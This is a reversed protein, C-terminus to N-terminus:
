KFWVQLLYFGFLESRRQEVLDEGVYWDFSKAGKRGVSSIKRNKNRQTDKSIPDAEEPKVSDTNAVSNEPLDQLSTEVAGTTSFADEYHSECELGANFSELSKEEDDEEEEEKEQFPMLEPKLEFPVSMSKPISENAEDIRSKHSVFHPRDSIKSKELLEAQIIDCDDMTSSSSFDTAGSSISVNEFASFNESEKMRSRIPAEDESSFREGTSSSLFVGSEGFPCKLRDVPVASFQKNLSATSSTPKCTLTFFSDLSSARFRSPLRDLLASENRKDIFGTSFSRTIPILDDVVCEVLRFNLPNFDLTMSGAFDERFDGFVSADEPEFRNKFQVSFVTRYCTKKELWKIVTKSSSPVSYNTVNKRDFQKGGLSLYQTTPTTFSFETKQMEFSPRDTQKEVIVNNLVDALIQETQLNSFSILDAASFNVIRNNDDDFTALDESFKRKPETVEIKSHLKRVADLLAFDIICQALTNAFVQALRLMQRNFQKILNSNDNNQCLGSIQRKEEICETNGELYEMKEDPDQVFSNESLLENTDVSSNFSQDFIESNPKSSNSLIDLGKFNQARAILEDTNTSFSDFSKCMETQSTLHSRKLLPNVIFHVDISMPKSISDLKDADSKSSLSSESSVRRPNQLEKNEQIPNSTVSNCIENYDADANSRDSLSLSEWVSNVEFSSDSKNSSSFVQDEFSDINSNALILKSAQRSSPTNPSSNCILPIKPSFTQFKPEPPNPIPVAKSHKPEDADSLSKDSFDTSEFTQKTLSQSTSLPSLFPTAQKHKFYRRISDPITRPHGM